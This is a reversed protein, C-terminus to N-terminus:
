GDKVPKRLPIKMEIETPGQGRKEQKQTIWSPRDYWGAYGALCYSGRFDILGPDTAGLRKLANVAAGM